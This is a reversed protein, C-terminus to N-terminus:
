VIYYAYYILYACTPLFLGFSNSYWSKDLAKGTRMKEFTSNNNKSSKNNKMIFFTMFFLLNLFQKSIKM